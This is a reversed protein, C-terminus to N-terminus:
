KEKPVCTTYEAKVESNEQFLKVFAKWAADGRNPIRDIAPPKVHYSLAEKESFEGTERLVIRAAYLQNDTVGNARYWAKQAAIAALFNQMTGGAKIASVRVLAIDGDCAPMQGLASTALLIMLGLILRM